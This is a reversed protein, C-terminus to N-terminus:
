LSSIHVRTCKFTAAKVAKFECIFETGDYRMEWALYRRAMLLDVVAIGHSVVVSM